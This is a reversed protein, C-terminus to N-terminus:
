SSFDNPSSRRTEALDIRLLIRIAALKRLILDLDKVQRAQPFGPIIRMIPRKRIHRGNDAHDLLTKSITLWHRIGLRDM